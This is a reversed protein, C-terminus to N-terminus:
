SGSSEMPERHNSSGKRSLLYCFCGFVVTAILFFIQAGTGKHWYEFAEQNTYAVIVALLAVRFGNVVFAVLVAIIPVLIKKALDMPFMVLFLVSLRLLRLISEVGSCARNVMVAGTPLIVNVGQRSVEFGLYSLIVNAFKATITSIDVREVLLNIPATLVLIVALEVWYQPLRKIGSALMALGLAAIFPSLQFLSDIDTIFFSRILVFAILSLGIFSSLADSELKLQHQKDSLLSFIAGWCLVSMSLYNLDNSMRWSLSLHIAILGATIALLWFQTNQLPKLSNLSTTM